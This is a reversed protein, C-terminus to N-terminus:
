MLANLIEIKNDTDFRYSIAHGYLPNQIYAYGIWIYRNGKRFCQYSSGNKKTFNGWRNWGRREAMKFLTKYTRVYKLGM